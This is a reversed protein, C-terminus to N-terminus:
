NNLVSVGSTTTRRGRGRGRRRGALPVSAQTLICRRRRAMSPIWTLLRFGRVYRDRFICGGSGGMCSMRRRKTNSYKGGDGYFTNTYRYPSYDYRNDRRQQRRPSRQLELNTEGGVSTEMRPIQIYTSGFLRM